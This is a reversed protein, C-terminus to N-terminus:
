IKGQMIRFALGFGEEPNRGCLIALVALKTKQQNNGFLTPLDSLSSLNESDMNVLQTLYPKVFRGEKEANALFKAVELQRSITNIHKDIESAEMELTLSDLNSSPKKGLNDVRLESELHKQADILFKSKTTLEVYDKTEETYFRICTMAARVHDKIFLQLYYLEDLSKKKNLTHCVHVLYKKWKMLGPEDNQLASLLKDIIGNKLCVSYVSHYFFEPDVSNEMVYALCEDLQEHKVFFELILSFSGYTLLYHLCEQFIENMIKLDKSELSNGSESVDDDSIKPPRSYLLKQNELIQLIEILLPPSTAPRPKIQHFKPLKEPSDPIIVWDNLNKESIKEM